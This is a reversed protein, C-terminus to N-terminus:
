GKGAKRGLVEEVREESLVPIVITVTTGGEERNRYSINYQEGYFLHIRESINRVGYGAQVSSLDQIGVGDDEVTFIMAEGAEQVRLSITGPGTKPELGHYVSNEVLPQLIFTLIYEDMVKDPVDIDLRYRDHFRYNQIKMYARIRELEKRVPIIKDGQNLSLKFNESLAQVLSAIEDEDRIVAMFYLTDLTNYLYHPNIQSQLLLLESEREKIESQMLRNQLDLNDNVMHKFQTGIRGVESDDFHADVSYNGRSVQMINEELVRLPKTIRKSINSSIIVSLGILVVALLIELLFLYRSREFLERKSIVNVLVWDSTANRYITFFYHRSQEGEGYESLIQHMEDSDLDISSYVLSPNRGEHEELIMYDATTYDREGRGFAAALYSKRINFVAYGMLKGNKPNNLCKALSFADNKGNDFLVNGSYFVEKGNAEDCDAVWSEKLIPEEHNLYSIVYHNNYDNQSEFVIKGDTNVVLIDRIGANNFLIEQLEGRIIRSQWASFFTLDSENCFASRFAQNTLLSREQDIISQFDMDLINDAVQLASKHASRYDRSLTRGYFYSLVSGFLLVAVISMASLALFIQRRIPLRDFRHRKGKM